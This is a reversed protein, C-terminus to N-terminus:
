ALSICKEVPTDAWTLKFAPDVPAALFRDFYRTNNTQTGADLDTWDTSSSLVRRAAAFTQPWSAGPMAVVRVDPGSAGQIAATYATEFEADGPQGPLNIQRARRNARYRWRLKGKNLFSSVGPYDPHTAMALGGGGIEAFVMGFKEADAAARALGSAKMAAGAFCNWSPVM